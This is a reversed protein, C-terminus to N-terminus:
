PAHLHPHTWTFGWRVRDVAVSKRLLSSVDVYYMWTEFFMWTEAGPAALM